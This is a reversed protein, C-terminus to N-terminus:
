PPGIVNDGDASQMDEVMVKDEERNIQLIGEKIFNEFSQDVQPPRFDVQAPRFDM